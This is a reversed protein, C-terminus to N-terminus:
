STTARSTDLHGNSALYQDIMTTIEAPTEVLRGIAVDPVYLRRDMWTVPDIDGYPDDSLFHSSALASYYQSTVDFSEAYQMENGSRTTDALRAMPVIDDAGVLVINKLQPHASVGPLSGTRIGDVLAGIQDVVGNALSPVCPDANWASYAAAVDPYGALGSNSGEVPLVAGVVGSANALQGLKTMLPGAAAGFTDGLRQQNVLVLTNLNAPLTALNPLVGATGGTRSYAPCAPLPDPIFERVRLLYPETSTAGQYASVQVLNAGAASTEEMDTIGSSASHGVVTQGDLHPVDAGLDNGSTSATPNRGAGGDDLPQGAIPMARSPKASPGTGAADTPPGYLVLDGDGALHSLRVGVQAGASPTFNYVDVDAGDAIYQFYLTDGAIAQATGATSGPDTNQNVTIPVAASTGV